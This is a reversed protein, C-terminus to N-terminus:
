LMDELGGGEGEFCDEITLRRTLILLVICYLVSQFLVFREVFSLRNKYMWEIYFLRWLLVVERCLVSPQTGLTDM